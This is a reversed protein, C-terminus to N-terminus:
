INALLWVVRAIAIGTIRWTTADAEGAEGAIVYLGAVIGAGAELQVGVWVGGLAGSVVLVRDCL